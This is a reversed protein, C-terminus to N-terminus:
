PAAPPPVAPSFPDIAQASPDTAIWRGLRSLDGDGTLKRLEERVQAPDQTVPEPVGQPNLRRGGTIEALGALWPPAQAEVVIPHWLRAAGESVFAVSKGDPSFNGPAMWNYDYLPLTVAGGTRADWFRLLDDETRTALWRSDPTFCVSSIRRDHKMPQGSPQGTQTDWVQVTGEESAATVIYQGDPSFSALTIGGNQKMPPGAPLSTQADWLRASGGYAVLMRKGDPSFGVSSGGGLFSAAEEPKMPPGAPRGTETDWAQATDGHLVLLRKGDPSFCALRGDKIPQGVAGGNRADWVRVILDKSITLFWRGDPSFNASGGGQMPPGAPLGTEASWLRATDDQSMTLVQKGDPSFIASNVDGMAQGEPQGTQWDWVQATRTQTVTLVRRGDPSFAVHWLIHHPQILEGAARGTQADCVQVNEETIYSGDVADPPSLEMLVWKGDASFNASQVSGQRELPVGPPESAPTRWIRATNEDSSITMVCQGDPSFCASNVYATQLIPKGMLRGSKVDRVQVTRGAVTVVRGGDASFSMSFGNQGHSIREGVPKGTQVDLFLTADDTTMVVWKGDPSFDVYRSVVGDAGTFSLMGPAFGKMPQGLPQGTQLDWLQASEFGVMLMLRGDPSFRAYEGSKMPEGAPKGTQTDYLRSTGDPSAILIRKGDRNFAPKMLEIDASHDIPQSVAQGVPEGTRANWIQTADDFVTFALQGDASLSATSADGYDNLLPKGVPEGSQTDWLRMVWGEKKEDSETVVLKGDESFDASKIKGDTKMAAGAPRGTQADWLQATDDATITLVLRGDRSLRTDRGNMPAGAPQGTRADYFRAGTKSVALVRNGDPSFRAFQITEDPRIVALPAPLARVLSATLAMAKQNQPDKRLADALYALMTPWDQKEFKLNAFAFDTESATKLADLRQSEAVQGLAVATQRQRLAYIGGAVALIALAGVAALWRRLIRARRGSQREQHVISSRIYGAFDNDLLQPAATLLRRGEELPLGEPLLLSEARSSVDAGSQKWRALYPMLGARLRLHQHNAAMWSKARDWVRVLAEHAVTVTAAADNGSATFLRATVFAGILARTADDATLEAMPAHQRVIVAGDDGGTTILRSWVRPLAEQAERPLKSFVGEAYRALAQEFDGGLEKWAAFTLKGDETRRQCLERLVHSLLPLLEKHARAERRLVGSLPVGDRIEYALGAARAPEEIVRALADAEPPLLDQQGGGNRLRVLAPLEQCRHFFDSRMTAAIWISGRRALAELAETFKLRAVENIRPETFLEELQDVLLIIRVGGRRKASARALAGKIKLRFTLAPDSQLGAALDAISDADGGLEPLARALAGALGGFLDAAAEGPTFVAHGWADTTEDLEYDVIAPLLGARALSSKGSGSAGAILLFASGQRAQERLAHRLSVIEDERGFFVAAHEFQYAALGLFPPGKDAVNWVPRSPDGGTMGDLLEELHVRLRQAFTTPRDFSHYARLNTKHEIDHFEEAIFNEVLKKQQILSEKADTSKGRLREEFSVEDRRTYVLVQPRVGGSQKRAAMILDFERETGSRYEAGDPRTVLPGTPSGLRSWLIFVAVDAGHESLVLDIGQQFSMDAQLPLDEWLLAKLNLRGAYRRQLQDVVQRAKEREEAVDGPSSIFIRLPKM